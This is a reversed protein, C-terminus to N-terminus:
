TLKIYRWYYSVSLQVNAGATHYGKLYITMPPDSETITIIATSQMRTAFGNVPPAVVLSHNYYNYRESGWALGRRGNSNSEFRALGILLYTGASLNKITALPTLDTGNPVVKTGEGSNTSASVLKRGDTSDNNCGAYVDGKLHLAGNNDLALANSKSSSNGNGVIVSYDGNPDEVNFEGFVASQAQLGESFVADQAQLKGNLILIDEDNAPDDDCLGFLAIQKGSKSIHVPFGGKPIEMEKSAVNSTSDSDTIKVSIKATNGIEYSGSLTFKEAGSEGVRTESFAPTASDDIIVDIKTSHTGNTDKGATWTFSVQVEEGSSLPIFNNGQKEGRIVSLDSLTPAVYAQVWQATLTKASPIVNAKKIIAGIQYITGTSDQWGNFVYGRESISAATIEETYKMEVPEPAEGHGGNQYILTATRETWHAYVTANGKCTDSSKVQTGETKSTYWGNFTYGTRTPTPLTGYASDYTVTKTSTSVNGGNANFTLTYKQAEWQATLTLNGNYSTTAGSAYYDGNSGLWNKFSYGTRTPKTTSLKLSEGHVKTQSSPAGTGGNANYSITYTQATWQATLTLNGNYNTTAGSAYTDGNSGKWNKFSYGERTPKTTSLKLSEGHWKTQSSPVDSGGNASYKITYHTKASVSVSCTDTLTGISVGTNFRGSAQLTQSSHTKSVTFEASGMTQASTDTAFKHTFSKTTGNFTITGTCPENNFSIGNGYYKMTIKIKASTDGNSETNYTLTIKATAM